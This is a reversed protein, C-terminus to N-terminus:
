KTAELFDRHYTIIRGTKTDQADILFDQINIVELVREGETKIWEKSEGLSIFEICEKTPKVRDGVKIKTM